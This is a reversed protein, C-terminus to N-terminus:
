AAQAVEREVPLEQPVPLSFAPVWSLVENGDVIKSAVSWDERLCGRGFPYRHEPVHDKISIAKQFAYNIRTKGGDLPLACILRVTAPGTQEVAMIEQGKQGTVSFGLASDPVPFRTTDFTIGTPSDFLLDVVNGQVVMHALRTIHREKGKELAVLRHAILEGILAKSNANLHVSDELALGYNAAVLHANRRRSAIDDLCVRTAWANGTSGEATGSAQTMLWTCGLSMEALVTEADDMMAELNRSYEEYPASRDAEGHFFPIYVHRLPAGDAEAAAKIQRIDEIFGEFIASRTGDLNLHIGPTVRGNRDRAILPCGGRAASRVIVRELSVDHTMQDLVTCGIAAGISQIKSKPDYSPDFGTIPKIRERGRWGQFSRGDNPVVCRPNDLFPVPLSPGANHADANSQGFLIVLISSTKM